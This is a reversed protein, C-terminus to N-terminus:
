RLLIFWVWATIWNLIFRSKYKWEFLHGPFMCPTNQRLTLPSVSISWFIWLAGRDIAIVTYFNTFNQILVDHLIAFGCFSHNLTIIVDLVCVYFHHLFAVFERRKFLRPLALFESIWFQVTLYKANLSVLYSFNVFFHSM